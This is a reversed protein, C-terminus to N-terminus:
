FGKVRLEKPIKSLQRASAKNIGLRLASLGGRIATGGVAGMVLPNVLQAGQKMYPSWKGFKSNYYNAMASAEPIQLSLLTGQANFMKRQARIRSTEARLRNKEQLQIASQNRQMRRAMRASEVNELPNNATAMAGGPSSAGTTSALYPNLGAKRLDAMQRQHATSSMREQFRMQKNAMGINMASSAIAGIPGLFPSAVDGVKKVTQGLRKWDM